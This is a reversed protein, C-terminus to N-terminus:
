AAGGAAIPRGGGGGALGPGRGPPEPGWATGAVFAPGAVSLAIPAPGSAAVPVTASGSVPPSSPMPPSARAPVSAPGSAPGSVAAPGHEFVSGPESAAGPVSGAVSAPLRVPASRPLPVAEPVPAPVSAPAPPPLSPTRPAARALPVTAAVRWGGGPRPGVVLDGGHVAVRERMGILGHGGPRPGASSTRVGGNDSAEISVHDATYRLRLTMTAAPGAHRLANTLSEQVIRYTTLEEAASLGVPLGETEVTVRLGAATAREVLGGLEALGIRRRGVTGIGAGADSGGSVDAHRGPSTVSPRDTPTRDTPTAAGRLVSLVRSMDELAERGTTAITTLANRAETASPDLVYSAGDAQVIMVSLSHAVVDHLERAIAAREDAADLRALHDRERELTATREELSAVYLRRTRVGYATAWVTVTIAGVVWFVTWFNHTRQDEVIAGLLVGVTAGIGAFIGFILKPCYKVVSYMTILVAVDFLRVTGQLALQGLAALSIVALVAVPYGRRFFLAVAMVCGLAIIAPDSLGREMLVLLGVGAAVGADFIRSGFRKDGMGVVILRLRLAHRGGATTAGSAYRVEERQQLCTARPQPTNVV